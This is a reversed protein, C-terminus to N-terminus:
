SLRVSEGVQRLSARRVPLSADITVGDTSSAVRYRYERGPVVDFDDFRNDWGDVLRGAPTSVIETYLDVNPAESRFLRYGSRAGSGFDNWALHNRDEINFVYWPADAYEYVGPEAGFCYKLCSWSMSSPRDDCVCGGTWGEDCSAHSYVWGIGADDTTTPYRYDNITQCPDDVLLLPERMITSACGPTEDAELDGLTIWHGIEHTMVGRTDIIPTGTDPWPPRWCHDIGWNLRDNWSRLATDVDLIEGTQSTVITTHAVEGSDFPYSTSWFVANVGDDEDAITREYNAESRTFTVAGGMWSTFANEFQAIVDPIPENRCEVPIADEHSNLEWTVNPDAWRAVNGDSCGVKFCEDPVFVYPIDGSAPLPSSLLGLLVVLVSILVRTCHEAM